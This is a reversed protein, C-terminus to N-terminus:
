VEGLRLAVVVLAHGLHTGSRGLQLARKRCERSVPSGYSISYRKRPASPSYWQNRPFPIGSRLSAPRITSHPEARRGVDGLALLEFLLALLEQRPLLFRAGLGVPPVLFQLAHGLAASGQDAAEAMVHSIRQADRVHGRLQLLEGLKSGSACCPAPIPRAMLRRM